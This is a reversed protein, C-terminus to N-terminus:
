TIAEFPNITMGVFGTKKDLSFTAVEHSGTSAEVLGSRVDISGARVDFSGTASEILWTRIEFSGIMTKVFSGDRVEVSFTEFSGIM